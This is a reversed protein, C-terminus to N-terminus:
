MGGDATVSVQKQAITQGAKTAVVTVQWTGGMQVEGPGEYLDGGKEGLTTVSRMAAMGMAPMAPMFFTVTVQAGTIAAGDAGTLKVRLNNSGTRPPSPNSSYELTAGQPANMAAAAGVGPPPPAFSGLSAALQSESDILFNASTAIREGAKLGKLVVFDDGARAGVEIDRPEFYGGGHDVFAIQRTGSQFVGSAPIALQDGLPLGLQVNVFMGLLLKLEPNPIELRVRARRTAQDVEPWIFSVRAPFTQGPYSDVTISAPDGVKVRGIDSQFIEAYVWVTSLDAVSYLKTGPQVYMNPFAKREIIFGSAPSDIDIERRIKGSKKLRAIERDPIQWQRLRETAADLLSQSGHSGAATGPISTQALLDKAVLYDQEATVVEQSYITLLPQGQRVQKYMADAYVKQVWGAFRIEVDSIRTEDAEINGVTRIEDRVPRFEVIGTKVGISQMRQPTLTVPVLSPESAPAGAGPAADPSSMGATSEPSSPSVRAKTKDDAENEYVPIYEMGMPDKKPVDSRDPLGMPNRYYLVRRKSKAAGSQETPAQSAPAAIGQPTQAMAEPVWLASGHGTSRGPCLGVAAVAALIVAARSARSRSV